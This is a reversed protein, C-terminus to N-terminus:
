SRYFSQKKKILLSLQVLNIKGAMNIVSKKNESKKIIEDIDNVQEEVGVLLFKARENKAIIEDILQAWKKISWNREKLCTLPHLVINAKKNLRYKKFIDKVIKKDKQSYNLEANLYEKKLGLPKLVKYHRNIELADKKLFSFGGYLKTKAKFLPLLARHFKRDSFIILLDYKKQRIKIFFTRFYNIKTIVIKLIKYITLEREVFPNNFIIINDIYPCAKAIKENWPGIVVNIKINPFEKKLSRMIPFTTLFDGIHETVFLLVEEINEKNIAM